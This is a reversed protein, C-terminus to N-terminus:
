GGYGERPGRPVRQIQFIKQTRDAHTILLTIRPKFPLLAVAAAPLTAVRLVFTCGRRSRIRHLDLPRASQAITLGLRDHGDHIGRDIM